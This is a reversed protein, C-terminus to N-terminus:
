AFAVFVDLGIGGPFYVHHTRRNKSIRRRRLKPILKQIIFLYGLNLVVGQLLTWAVGYLSQLTAGGQKCFHYVIEQDGELM